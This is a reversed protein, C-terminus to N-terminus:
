NHGRSYLREAVGPPQTSTNKATKPRGHVVMAYGSTSGLTTFNHKVVYSICLATYAPIVVQGKSHEVSHSLDISPPLSTWVDPGHVTQSLMDVLSPEQEVSLPPDPQQRRQSDNTCFTVLDHFYPASRQHFINHM